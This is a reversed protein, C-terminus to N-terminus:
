DVELPPTGEFFVDNFEPDCLEGGGQVIQMALADHM